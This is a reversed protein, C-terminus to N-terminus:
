LGEVELPDLNYMTDYGLLFRLWELASLYFAAMMPLFVLWKPMDFSRTEYDGSRLMELFSGLAITGLYLCLAVCLVYVIKELVARGAPKLISRLFEVFVHGKIRVLWPMPLFAAYLLIYESTSVGWSLPRFGLNRFAVDAVVILIMLGILIKALSALLHSLRGTLDFLSKM